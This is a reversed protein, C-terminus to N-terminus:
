PDFSASPAALVLAGKGKKIPKIVIDELIVFHELVVIVITLANLVLVKSVYYKKLVEQIFKSNQIKQM